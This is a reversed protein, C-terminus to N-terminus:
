EDAADSTYLLCIGDDDNVQINEPQVCNPWGNIPDGLETIDNNSENIIDGIDFESSAIQAQSISVLLCLFLM